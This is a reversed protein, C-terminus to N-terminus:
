SRTSPNRRLVRALIAACVVLVGLGYILLATAVLAVHVGHGVPAWFALALFVNLAVVYTFGWKTGKEAMHKLASAGKQHELEVALKDIV